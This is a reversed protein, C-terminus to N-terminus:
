LRTVPILLIETLTAERRADLRHEIRNRAWPVLYSYVTRPVHTVLRDYCDNVVERVEQTGIRGYFEYSLTRVAGALALDNRPTDM